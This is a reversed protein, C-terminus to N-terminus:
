SHESEGSRDEDAGSQIAFVGARSTAASVVRTVRELQPFVARDSSDQSRDDASAANARDIRRM